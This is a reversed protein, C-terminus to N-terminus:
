DFRVLDIEDGVTAASVLTISSGSKSFDTTPRIKVGNVFVQIYTPLTSTDTFVTQGQTATFTKETPIVGGSSGAGFVLNGGSDVKLVTDEAGITSPLSYNGVTLTSTVDVSAATVQGTFDSTGAVELGTGNLLKLDTGTLRANISNSGDKRIAFEILGDETTNTADDIKGTIKAYTNAGGASDEGRFKLQGLYDADAPSASNRFLDIEPGASSGTDTSTLTLNGTGTIDGTVDIGARADIVELSIFEDTKFVFKNASNTIDYVILSGEFNTIKWDPNNTTSVFNLDPSFGQLTLDGTMTDSTNSRLFNGSTIGDLTDADLGSGGGDVTKLLTLIESATQDATAGSEIGDLKSGDTALDRGDVTGSVVVNGTLTTIGSVELHRLHGGIEVISVTGDNIETFLKGDYTNLALEGLELQAATPANNQVSSRKIKIVPSAM